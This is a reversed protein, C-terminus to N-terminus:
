HNEIGSGHLEQAHEDSKMEHRELLSPWISDVGDLGTMEARGCNGQIEYVAGSALEYRRDRAELERKRTEETDLEAKPQLYIRADCRTTDRREKMATARRFHTQGIHWVLGILAVVVVLVILIVLNNQSPM